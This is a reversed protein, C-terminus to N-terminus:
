IKKVEKFLNKITCLDACPAAPDARSVLLKSPRWVHSTSSTPAPCSSLVDAQRIAQHRQTQVPARPAWGLWVSPVTGFTERSLRDFSSIVQIFVSADKKEHCKEQCVQALLCEVMWLKRVVQQKISRIRNNSLALASSNKKQVYVPFSSAKVTWICFYKMGMASRAKYRSGTARRLSLCVSERWSSSFEGARHCRATSIACFLRRTPTVTGSLATM